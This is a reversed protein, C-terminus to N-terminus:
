IVIVVGVYAVETFCAISDLVGAPQPGGPFRENDIILVPLVMGAGIGGQFEVAVIQRTDGIVV